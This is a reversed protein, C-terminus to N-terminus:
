KIHSYKEVEEVCPANCQAPERVEVVGSLVNTREFFCKGGGPSREVGGYV